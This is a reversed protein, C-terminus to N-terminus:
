KSPGSGWQRQMYYVLAWALQWGHTEFGEDASQKAVAFVTSRASDIWAQAQNRDRFTQPSSGAVPPSLPLRPLSPSLCLAASHATHVYHDFLRHVADRHDEVSDFEETLEAAYDRLLDHLSYAKPAYEVLLHARKLEALLLQTDAPALGVLSAAASITLNPGPHLGLLRFLRAAPSTLVQYSWSFAARADMTPDSGVFADLSGKAEYLESAITSLPFGAHIAARAAVIALALPLRGCAGVIDKVVQPESAVRVAGIREAMFVAGEEESLVDLTFPHSGHTAVLGALQDRSTVIVLCGPSGPLLTRVHNSDRVNDLVILLRRNALVSRYLAAQADVDKPVHKPSVGLASLFARIAASADVMAGAPDFGRLNIYLQGDPFQDAVSHALRVALATKGVGAMGGITVVASPEHPTPVLGQARALEGSRGTYIPLDPPLQRPRVATAEPSAGPRRAAHKDSLRSGARSTRAALQGAAAAAGHSGGDATRRSEYAAPETHLMGTVDIRSATPDAHDPHAMAPDSALIRAHLERLELGPATGLEVALIRSTRRYVELAEAQRGCRYLTLMLLAHLRERLPNVESLAALQGVVQDHRGLQVDLELRTELVSLRRESLRAREAEALPGPIGALPHGQWIDLAQALLRAAEAHEGRGRLRAAQSVGAEFETIDLAGSGSTRVAYGGGASLVVRPPRSAPRDPELARRLRSAYTRVTSVAGLPPVSGWVADVLEHIPVPRGQGLLLALLVAQQQPTGLKVERGGNWARVPGLLAFRLAEVRDSSSPVDEKQNWTTSM